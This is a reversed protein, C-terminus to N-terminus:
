SRDRSRVVRISAKSGLRRKRSIFIEVDHGLANLLRVLRDSSFERLHGRFLASFRSRDHVSRDETFRPVKPGLGRGNM